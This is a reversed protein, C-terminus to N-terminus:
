SIVIYTLEITACATNVLCVLGYEIKAYSAYDCTDQHEYWNHVDYVLSFLKVKLGEKFQVVVIQSLERCLTLLVDVHDLIIIIFIDVRM